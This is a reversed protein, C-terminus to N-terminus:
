ANILVAKVCDGRHQATIAENVQEMSFTQILKELPLRGARWHEILEPIFTEPDSDGEIIGRITLGFVLLLDIPGPSPSGPPPVGVVGLTGKPGLCALAANLIEVRGTSDFAYNLGAPLIARVAEVLNGTEAPDIVHTAGLEVALARREAHPEVVIITACGQIVAGMVASLGVAGAGTVLLTSGPECALARMIGGVGTQIGCGLPGAIEFPVDPALPVLNREYTLAHTAFSSQGFFNSSIAGDGDSLSKSGDLRMGIYNLVPMTVCYAPDGSKCRSCNGCSRFSIAVRDGVAVKTVDAGVQEVIGAGEHGLVAPLQIPMLGDRGLLDTHCVGVAAIRVLVEDPRPADLDVAEILFDQGPKRAVAARIKM